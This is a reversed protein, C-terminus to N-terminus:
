SKNIERTDVENEMECCKSCSSKSKCKRIIQFLTLVLNSVTLIILSTTSGEM